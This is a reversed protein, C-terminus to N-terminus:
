SYQIVNRIGTDSIPPSVGLPLILQNDTGTLTIRNVKTGSIVRVKNRIGTIVIDVASDSSIERYQDISTISITQISPFQSTVVPAVRNKSEIPPTDYVTICGISFLLVSLILFNRNSIM